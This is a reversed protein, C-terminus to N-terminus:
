WYTKRAIDPSNDLFRALAKDQNDGLIVGNEIFGVRSLSWRRLDNAVLGYIVATGIGVFYAVFADTRLTYVIGIVIMSSCVLGLSVWWMRHWLSWIVSLVFASWSFGELILVIDSAYNQEHQRLHVTYIKM